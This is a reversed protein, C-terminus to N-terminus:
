WNELQCALRFGCPLREPRLELVAVTATQRRCDPRRIPWCSPSCHGARTLRTENITMCKILISDHLDLLSQLHTTPTATRKFDSHLNYVPRSKPVLNPPKTCQPRFSSEDITLRSFLLAVVIFFHCFRGVCGTLSSIPIRPFAQSGTRTRCIVEEEVEEVEKEKERGRPDRSKFSM